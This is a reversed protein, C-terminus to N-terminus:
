PTLWCSIVLSTTRNAALVGAKDRCTGRLANHYEVIPKCSGHSSPPPTRGQTVADSYEEQVRPQVALM